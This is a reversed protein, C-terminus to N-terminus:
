DLTALRKMNALAQPKKQFCFVSSKKKMNSDFVLTRVKAEEYSTGRTSNEIGFIIMLGYHSGTPSSASIQGDHLLIVHVAKSFDAPHTTKVTKPMQEVVNFCSYLYRDFVQIQELLHPDNQALQCAYVNFLAGNIWRQQELSSIDRKDISKFCHCALNIM